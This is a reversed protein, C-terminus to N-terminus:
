EIARIQVSAVITARRDLVSAAAHFPLSGLQLVRAAVNQRASGSPSLSIAPLKGIEPEPARRLRERLVSALTALFEGPYESTRVSLDFREAPFVFRLSRPTLMSVHDIPKLM